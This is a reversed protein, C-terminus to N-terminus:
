KAVEAVGTAIARELLARMETEAKRVEDEMKRGLVEMEKGLVEMQEGLQHMPKELERMQADLARMERDLERMESEIQRRDEDLARREVETQLRREREAMAGQRAGLAGQRAGLNGQRAGLNGQQAGLEGQRAGLEGQASGLKGQQDGIENVPTWIDLVQQLVAPDRVVYERGVHRFWLMREGARRFRRAQQIDRRSGSMHTNHDDLFLVYNLDREKQEATGLSALDEFAGGIWARGPGFWLSSFDVTGWAPTEVTAVAPSQRAAIRLPAIAIVSIGIVVGAIIRSRRSRRSQRDLM